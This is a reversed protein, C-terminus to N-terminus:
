PSTGSARHADLRRGSLLPVSFRAQLPPLVPLARTAAPSARVPTRKRQSARVARSPHRVMRCDTTAIRAVVASRWEPATGMSTKGAGFAMGSLLQLVVAIGFVVVRLPRSFTPRSNMRLGISMAIGYVLNV